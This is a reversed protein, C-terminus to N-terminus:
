QLNRALRGFILFVRSDGTKHLALGANIMRM